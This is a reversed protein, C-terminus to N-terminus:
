GTLDIKVLQIGRIHKRQFYDKVLQLLLSALIIFLRYETPYIQENCEALAIVATKSPNQKLKNKGYHLNAWIWITM